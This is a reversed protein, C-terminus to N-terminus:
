SGTFKNSGLRSYAPPSLGLQFMSMRYWLALTQTEDVSGIGPEQEHVGHFAVSSPELVQPGAVSTTSRSPIGAKRSGNPM